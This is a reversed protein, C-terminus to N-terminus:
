KKRTHPELHETNYAEAINSLERALKNYDPDGGWVRSITQPKYSSIMSSLKDGNLKQLLFLATSIEEVLKVDGKEKAAEM